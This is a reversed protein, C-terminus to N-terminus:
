AARMKVRILASPMSVPLIVHAILAKCANQSAALILIVSITKCALVRVLVMINEVCQTRAVHRVRVCM